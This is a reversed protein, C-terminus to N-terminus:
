NKVWITDIIKHLKYEILKHKSLQHQKEVISLQHENKYNLVSKTLVKIKKIQKNSHLNLPNSSLLQNLSKQYNKIDTKLSKTNKQRENFSLLVLYTIEFSHKKDDTM